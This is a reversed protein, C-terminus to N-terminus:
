HGCPWTFAMWRKECTFTRINKCCYKHTWKARTCARADKRTIDHPGSFTELFVINSQPKTWCERAPVTPCPASNKAIIYHGAIQHIALPKSSFTALLYSLSLSFSTCLLSMANALQHHIAAPLSSLFAYLSLSATLGKKLDLSHVVSLPKKGTKCCCSHM